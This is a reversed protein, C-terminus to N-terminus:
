NFKKNLSNEVSEAFYTPYIHNGYQAKNALMEAAEYSSLDEDYFNNQRLIYEIDSSSKGYLEYEMVTKIEHYSFDKISKNGENTTSSTNNNTGLNTAILAAGSVLLFTTLTTFM